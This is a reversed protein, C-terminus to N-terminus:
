EVLSLMERVAMDLGVFMARSIIAHGINLDEVGTIDAVPKVNRYNLGHGANVRLGLSLAAEAGALLRAYEKERAIDGRALAYRGTHLEVVQAEVARAAEIQRLEPEIFVSVMINAARLRQIVGRLREVQGAVDLGGETTLEQRKEPVLTCEDPKVRCAIAAMEDTAAMELNFKTQVVSRLLEIDRDQMHRRDERLHATIGHAGAMETLVAAAVTDPEQYGRAQRLTAVHDINVCLNAM